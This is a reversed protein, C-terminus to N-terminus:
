QLLMGNDLVYNSGAIGVAKDSAVFMVLDAVEESKSIRSLPIKFDNVNFQEVSLGANEIIDTAVPGPSIVNVRVGHQALELAAGRSFHDLAAKSTGYATMGKGVKTGAVSSINVINGGSAILHAATLTTLHIVARLNTNIIEDFSDLMNGGTIATLRLIGANNVLVDIKGFKEITEDVIRRADAEVSVDAKVVHHKNGFINCKDSVNKLKDENRGVIVVSAGAEAFKIATAAGIGSSAGTVIIVKGTFSM